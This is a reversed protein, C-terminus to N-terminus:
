CWENQRALEDVAVLKAARMTDAYQRLRVRELRSIRRYVSYSIPRTRGAFVPEIEYQGCASACFGDETKTWKINM